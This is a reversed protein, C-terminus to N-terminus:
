LDLLNQQREAIYLDRQQKIIQRIHQESLRYRNALTADHGPNHEAYIRRDRIFRRCEDAKPLYINTGGCYEALAKAATEALETADDRGQNRYTNLLSDYVAGLHSPWQMQTQSPKM